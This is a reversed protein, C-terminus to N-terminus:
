IQVTNRHFKYLPVVTKFCSNLNDVYLMPMNGPKGVPEVIGHNLLVSFVNNCSCYFFKFFIGLIV